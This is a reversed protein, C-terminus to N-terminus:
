KQDGMLYSFKDPFSITFHRSDDSTTRIEVVVRESPLVESVVDGWEVAVVTDDQFIDEQLEEKLLGPQDLRYFDFHEVRFKGGLYSNNITFSPSSVEDTSGIGEVLGRVFATKGGGLDSILEFVEGGRCNNGLKVGLSSTDQLSRSEIIQQNMVSLTGEKV